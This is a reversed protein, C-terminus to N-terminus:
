LNSIKSHLLIKGIIKGNHFYNSFYKEVGNQDSYIQFRPTSFYKEL